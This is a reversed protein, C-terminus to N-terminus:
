CHCYFICTSGGSPFKLIPPIFRRHRIIPSFGFLAPLHLSALYALPQCVVPVFAAGLAAVGKSYSGFTEGNESVLIASITSASATAANMTYWDRGTGSGSGASHERVLQSPKRANHGLTVAVRQVDQRFVVNRAFVQALDHLVLPSGLRQRHRRAQLGGLRM